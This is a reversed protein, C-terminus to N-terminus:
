QLLIIYITNLNLRNIWTDKEFKAFSIQKSFNASLVVILQVCTLDFYKHQFVTILDCLIIVVLTSMFGLVAIFQVCIFKLTFM